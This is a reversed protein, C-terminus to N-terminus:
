TKSLVRVLKSYSFDGMLKKIGWLGEAGEVFWESGIVM